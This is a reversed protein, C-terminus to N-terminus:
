DGSPEEGRHRLDSPRRAEAGVILSAGTCAAACLGIGATAVWLLDSSYDSSEWSALCFAGAV